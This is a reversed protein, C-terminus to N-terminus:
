QAPVPDAHHMPNDTAPAAPNPHFSAINIM